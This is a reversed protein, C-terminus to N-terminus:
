KGDRRSREEEDRACLSSIRIAALAIITSAIAVIALVILIIKLM